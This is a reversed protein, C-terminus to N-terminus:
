KAVVLQKNRKRESLFLAISGAAKAIDAVYTPSSVHIM